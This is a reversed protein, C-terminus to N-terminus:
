IYHNSSRQRYLVGRMILKGVMKPSSILESQYSKATLFAM